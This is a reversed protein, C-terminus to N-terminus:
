AEKSMVMADRLHFKGQIIELYVDFAQISRQFTHMAYLPAQYKFPLTLILRKYAGIQVKMKGEKRRYM